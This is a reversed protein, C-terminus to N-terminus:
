GRKEKPYLRNFDDSIHSSVKHFEVNSSTSIFGSVVIGAKLELISSVLARSTCILFNEVKNRCGLESYSILNGVEWFDSGLSGALKKLPVRSSNTGDRGGGLLKKFGFFSGYSFLFALYDGAETSTEMIFPQM